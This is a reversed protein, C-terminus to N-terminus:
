PTQSQQNLRRNVEQLEHLIGFMLVTNVSQTEIYGGGRDTVKVFENSELSVKLNGVELIM